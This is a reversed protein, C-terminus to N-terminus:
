DEWEAQWEKEKRKAERLNERDPSCCNKYQCVCLLGVSCTLCVHTHTHVLPPATCHLPTRHLSPVKKGSGCVCPLNAAKSSRKPHPAAATLAGPIPASSAASPDSCM